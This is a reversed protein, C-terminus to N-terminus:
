VQTMNIAELFCYFGKEKWIMIVSGRVKEELDLDVDVDLALALTM